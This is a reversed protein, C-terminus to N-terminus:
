LYFEHEIPTVEAMLDGTEGRKVAAFLAPFRAPLYSALLTSRELADLAAFINRPLASLAGADGASAPQLRHVIGYHVGALIAAMTLHPSADAAAVRHEIRRAQAPGRPIRFAVSRDNEGWSSSLSVFAGLRYRRYASFSPSFLAMSEAHMRQMGAIASHLLAEGGEGAFRNRGREDSLSVHVHLGSGSHRAYPKAMFSARRGQALAVGATARRQLAAQDAAQLPDNTHRLNLEFQGPGYESVLTDAPLAQEELAAHLTHLFDAHDELHQPCLHGARPADAMKPPLLYFELECSVVPFLGDAHCRDIVSRLVARPDFWVDQMGLLTQAVGHRSWPVAHLTGPVPYATADPDGDTTGFGLPGQSNGRADLILASASFGVGDRVAGPWARAPLRKGRAHGNIDIVFADVFKTGPPLAPVPAPPQTDDM